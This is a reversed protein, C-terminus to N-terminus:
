RPKAVLTDLLVTRTTVETPAEELNGFHILAINSARNITLVRVDQPGLIHRHTVIEGEQIIAPPEESGWQGRPISTLEGDARQVGVITSETLVASEIIKRVGGWSSCRIYLIADTRSRTKVIYTTPQM